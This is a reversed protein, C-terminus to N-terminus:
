LRHIVNRHLLREGMGEIRQELASAAKRFARYGKFRTVPANRSGVGELWPGYVPGALGGDWVEMGGSTNHIEVNSEYYGTPTKFSSHFTGKIHHLAWEAGDEELDDAFDDFIRHARADFLAGHLRTRLRLTYGM